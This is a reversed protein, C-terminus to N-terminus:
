KRYIFVDTTDFDARKGQEKAFKNLTDIIHVLTETNIRSSDNKVMNYITTPRVKAEVALQNPTIDLKSLTKNLTFVIKGM